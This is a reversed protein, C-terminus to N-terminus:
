IESYRWVIILGILLIKSRIYLNLRIRM